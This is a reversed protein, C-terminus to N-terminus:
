FIDASRRRTEALAFNIEEGSSSQQIAARKQHGVPLMPSSNLSSLSNMAVSSSPSPYFVDSASDGPSDLSLLPSGSASLSPQSQVVFLASPFFKFSEDSLAPSQSLQNCTSLCSIKNIEVGPCKPSKIVIEGAESEFEIDNKLEEAMAAILEGINAKSGELVLLDAEPRQQLFVQIGASPLRLLAAISARHKLPLSVTVRTKASSQIKQLSKFSEADFHGTVESVSCEEFIEDKIAKLAAANKSPTRVVVNDLPASQNSSALSSLPDSLQNCQQTEHCNMFKVYVGWKKMIRQIVKGGHGIMRKHHVEPVHFTLEAPLEGEVLRLAHLLPNSGFTCGVHDEVILDIYMSDGSLVNLSVNVGTEKIIRNLKGDKKGCVFERIEAPVHLRLRREILKLDFSGSEFIQSRFTDLRILARALDGSSGSIEVEVNGNVSRQSVACNTIQAISEFVGTCKTSFDRYDNRFRFTFHASQHRSLISHLRKLCNALLAGSLCTVQYLSDSLHTLTAGTSWLAEEVHKIAGSSYIWDLKGSDIVLNTSALQIEDLRDSRDKLLQVVASIASASAGSVRLNLSSNTPLCALPTDWTITCDFEALADKVVHYKPGLLLGSLCALTPFEIFPLSNNVTIVSEKVEAELEKTEKDGDEFLLSEITKSTRLSTELDVAEDDVSSSRMIEMKATQVLDARAGFIKLGWRPSNADPVLLRAKLASGSPESIKKLTENIFRKFQNSALSLATNEDSNNNNNRTDSDTFTMPNFPSQSYESFTNSINDTYNEEKNASNNNVLNDNLNSVEKNIYGNGNSNNDGHKSHKNNNGSLGPPPPTQLGENSPLVQQQITAQIKTTNVIGEMNPYGRMIMELDIPIVVVHGENNNDSQSNSNM